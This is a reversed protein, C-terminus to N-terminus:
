GHRKRRVAAKKNALKFCYLEREVMDAYQENTRDPQDFCEQVKRAFGAVEDRLSWEGVHKRLEATSPPPRKRRASRSLVHRASLDHSELDNPDRLLLSDPDLKECRARVSQIVAAVVEKLSWGAAECVALAELRDNWCSVYHRNDIHQPYQGITGIKKAGPVDKRNSLAFPRCSQEDLIELVQGAPLHQNASLLDHLRRSVGTIDQASPDFNIRYYDPTRGRIKMTRKPFGRRKKDLHTTICQNMTNLIKGVTVELPFTKCDPGALAYLCALAGSDLFTSAATLTNSPKLECLNSNLLDHDSTWIRTEPFPEETSMSAPQAEDDVNFRMKLDGVPM